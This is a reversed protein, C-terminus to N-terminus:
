FDGDTMEERALNSTVSESRERVDGDLLALQPETQIDNRLKPEKIGCLMIFALVAVM